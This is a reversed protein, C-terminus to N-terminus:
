SSEGNLAFVENYAISASLDLKRLIQCVKTVAFSQLDADWGVLVFFCDAKATFHGTCHPNASFHETFWKDKQLLPSLLGVWEQYPVIHSRMLSYPCARSTFLISFNHNTGLSTGQLLCLINYMTVATRKGRAPACFDRLKFVTVYTDEWSPRNATPVAAVRPVRDPSVTAAAVRPVRECILVRGLQLPTEELDSAMCVLYATLLKANDSSRLFELADTANPPHLAVAVSGHRVRADRGLVGISTTVPLLNLFSRGSVLSCACLHMFEAAVAAQAVVTYFVALSTVSPWLPEEESFRQPARTAPHSLATEMYYFVGDKGDRAFRGMIDLLEYYGGEASLDSPDNTEADIAACLADYLPPFRLFAFYGAVADPDTPAPPDLNLDITRMVTSLYCNVLGSPHGRAAVAELLDCIIPVVRNRGSCMPPPSVAGDSRPGSLEAAGEMRAAWAGPPFQCRAFANLMDYQMSALPYVVVHSCFKAGLFELSTVYFNTGPM